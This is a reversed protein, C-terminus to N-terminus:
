KKKGEQIDRQHYCDELKQSGRGEFIQQVIVVFTFVSSRGFEKLLYWM